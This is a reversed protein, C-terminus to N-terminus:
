PSAAGKTCRQLSIIAITLPTPVEKHPLVFAAAQELRCLQLTHRAPAREVAVLLRALHRRKLLATITLSLQRQCPLHENRPAFRLNSPAIFLM